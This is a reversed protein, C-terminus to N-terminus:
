VLIGSVIEDSIYNAHVNPWICIGFVFILVLVFKQVLIKEPVLKKKEYLKKEPGVNKESWFDILMYM